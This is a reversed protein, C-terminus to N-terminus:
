VGDEDLEDLMAEYKQKVEPDSQIAKRVKNYTAAGVYDRALSQFTENIRNTEEEKRKVINNLAAIEEPTAKAEALKVSDDAIKSLENYRAASITENNEVLDTITEILNEKMSEVSDMLVAYKMLEEDTVSVEDQAVAPVGSLVTIGMLLFFLKYLKM